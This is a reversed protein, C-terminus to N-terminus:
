YISTPHFLIKRLETILTFSYLISNPLDPELKGRHLQTFLTAKSLRPKRMRPIPAGIRRGLAQRPTLAFVGWVSVCMQPTGVPHASPLPGSM